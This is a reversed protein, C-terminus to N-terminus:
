PHRSPKSSAPEAGTAAPVHNSNSIVKARILTAESYATPVGSGQSQPTLVSGYMTHIKQLYIDKFISSNWNECRHCVSRRASQIRAQSVSRGHLYLRFIGEFRTNFKVPTLDWFIYFKTQSFMRNM